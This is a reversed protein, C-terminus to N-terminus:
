LGSPVEPAGVRDGEAGGAAEQGTFCVVARPGTAPSGDPLDLPQEV